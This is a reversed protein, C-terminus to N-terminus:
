AGPVAGSRRSRSLRPMSYGRTIRGRRAYGPGQHDPREQEEGFDGAPGADADAGAPGTGSGAQVAEGVAPVVGGVALGGDAAPGEPWGVGSQDGPCATATIDFSGGSYPYELGASWRSELMAAKIRAEAEARAASAAATLPGPEAHEPASALALAPEPRLSGGTGASGATGTTGATGAHEGQGTGGGWDALDPTDDASRDNGGDGEGAWDEDAWEDDGEFADADRGAHRALAPAGSAGAGAGRAGAAPDGAMAQAWGDAPSAAGPSGGAGPAASEGPVWAVSAARASGHAAAEQAAAAVQRFVPADRDDVARLQQPVPHPVPHPRVPLALVHGSGALEQSAPRTVIEAHGPGACDHRDLLVALQEADAAALGLVVRPQGWPEELSYGVYSSFAPAPNARLGHVARWRQWAGELATAAAQARFVVDPDRM